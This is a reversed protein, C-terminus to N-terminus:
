HMQPRPLEREAAPVYRRPIVFLSDPLTSREVRIVTTREIDLAEGRRADARQTRTEVGLVVGPPRRLSAGAGVSEVNGLARQYAEYAGAPMELERAVWIQQEVMEETGLLTRRGYHHYRDCTYGAIETSSGMPVFSDVAVHGASAGVARTMAGATGMAEEAAGRAAGGTRAADSTTGPAAGPVRVSDGSAAGPDDGSAAGRTVGEQLRAEWLRLSMERYTRTAPELFVIRDADLDLLTHGGAHSIRVRRSTIYTLITDARSVHPQTHLEYLIIGPAGDAVPAADMHPAGTAPSMARRTDDTPLTGTAGTNAGSAALVRGAWGIALCLSALTAAVRLMGCKRDEIAACLM